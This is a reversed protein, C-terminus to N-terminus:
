PYGYRIIMRWVKRDEVDTEKAGVEGMDKKVVDLFRRRPKGRRRKEPLEM